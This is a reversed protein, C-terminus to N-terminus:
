PYRRDAQNIEFSYKQDSKEWGNRDNVVRCVRKKKTAESTKQIKLSSPEQQEVEQYKGMM